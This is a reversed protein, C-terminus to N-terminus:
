RCRGDPAPRRSSARGRGPFSGCPRPTTGSIRHFGLGELFVDRAERAHRRDLGPDAVDVAKLTQQGVAADRYLLEGLLAGEGLGGPEEDIAIKLALGVQGSPVLFERLMALELELDPVDDLGQRFATM